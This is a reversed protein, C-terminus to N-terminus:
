RYSIADLYYYGLTILAAALILTLVALVILRNRGIFLGAHKLPSANEAKPVYGTQFASIDAHLEAVTLYRDHPNLAMAKRCIAELAAPIHRDGVTVASPPPIDGIATRRLIEVRPLASLPSCYTLMAYLICGLSYIDSRFGVPCDKSVHIQEPSMYGPTGKVRGNADADEANPSVIPSDPDLSRALGWDLVLVEGYDGINVNEPKLDLHCIKQSHAFEIANCIRIFVQLLRLQDFRKVAEEEGKRLKRLVASLSQGHLYKMTFFPSNSGDVGLDHVPVINPHELQATLRAERVFRELDARPRERFDPMIAMAVERGTDSDFVLLVSKMGGFGISRLFKYREQPKVPLSSFVDHKAGHKASKPDISIIETKSEISQTM